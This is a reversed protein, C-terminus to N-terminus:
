TTNRQPMQKCLTHHAQLPLMELHTYWGQTLGPEIERCIQGYSHIALSWNLWSFLEWSFGIKAFLSNQSHWTCMFCSDRWLNSLLTSSISPSRPDKDRDALSSYKELHNQARILVLKISGQEEEHYLYIRINISVVSNNSSRAKCANSLWPSKVPQTEVFDSKDYIMSPAVSCCSTWPQWLYVLLKHIHNPTSKERPCWLLVCLNHLLGHLCAYQGWIIWVCNSGEKLSESLVPITKQQKLWGKGDDNLSMRNGIGEVQDWWGTYVIVGRMNGRRWEGNGKM